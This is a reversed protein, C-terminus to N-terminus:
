QQVCLLRIANWNNGPNGSVQAGSRQSCNSFHFRSTPAISSIETYPPNMTPSNFTVDTVYANPTLLPDVSTWGNCTTGTNGNGYMGTLVNYVQYMYWNAQFMSSFEPYNAGFGTILPFNIFKNKNTTFTAMDNIIDKYNASNLLVWDKKSPSFARNNGDVIMAKWTMGAAGKGAPIWSSDAADHQCITDAKAIGTDGTPQWDGTLEMAGNPSSKSVFIWKNQAKVNINFSTPNPMPSGSVGITNDSDTSPAILDITCTTNNSSVVCNASTPSFSDSAATYTTNPVAYGGNLTFKVKITTDPNIVYPSAMINGAEDLLQAIVSVPAYVSVNIISSNNGSWNITKNAQLGEDATSWSAKNNEINLDREGSTVTNLTFKMTCSNGSNKQLTSTTNCTSGGAEFIYGNPNVGSVTFNSADANGQNKYTITVTSNTNQAVAFATDNSKGDGGSAAPSFVVDTIIPDASIPARASGIATAQTNERVAGNT